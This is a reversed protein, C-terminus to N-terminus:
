DIFINNAAINALGRGAIDALENINADIPKNFFPKPNRGRGAMAGATGVRSIPWGRGVGKHVYVMYRRLHYSVRHIRGSNSGFSPKLSEIGEGQHIKLRVAEAIMQRRTKYTWQRVDKNFDQEAQKVPNM